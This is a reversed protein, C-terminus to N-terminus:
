QSFYEVVPTEITYCGNLIYKSLPYKERFAKVIAQAKEDKVADIMAQCDKNCEGVFRARHNIRGRQKKSEVEKILIALDSLEKSPKKISNLLVPVLRSEDCSFCDQISIKYDAFLKSKEFMKPILTEFPIWNKKKEIKSLDKTRIGYIDGLTSLDVDGLIYQFMVKFNYPSMDGINNAHYNVYYYKKSDDLKSEDIAKWFSQRSWSKGDALDLQLVSCGSLPSGNSKKTQTREPLVRECESLLKVRDSNLLKARKKLNDLGDSDVPKILIVKEGKDEDIFALRRNTSYPSPSDDVVYYFNSQPELNLRYRSSKTSCIRGREKRFIRSEMSDIYSYHFLNGGVDTGNFSFKIDGFEKPMNEKIYCVKETAEFLNSCSEVVEQGEHKFFLKMKQAAKDLATKTRNNYELAERGHHLDFEGIEAKYVFNNPFGSHSVPYMIGGMLVHPQWFSNGDSAYGYYNRGSNEKSFMDFVENSMVEVLRNAKLYEEKNSSTFNKLNLKGYLYFAFFAFKKHFSDIDQNAIPVSVFIGNAENSEESLIETVVTDNNDDIRISYSTKWGEFVSSVIFSSTYSLPAFRGIGFGGINSNSSRKTSKGYKTYLGLMDEKSLGVGYDRVIFNPSLKTPLIVDPKKGQSVDLANAIIERMTALITDSYNNRLLSAIYRMDEADISCSRQTFTQSAVSKRHTDQIIM